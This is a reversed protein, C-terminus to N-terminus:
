PRRHPSVRRATTSNFGGGSIVPVGYPRAVTELQPIMGEAECAIILRSEQGEQRDLRLREAQHRLSRLFQDADAYGLSGISFKGGDDRIADWSIRSARRATNILDLLRQYGSDSKDYGYAGILRYFIQRITLPLYSAYEVLIADIAELLKRSRKQPKWDEIFGRPRLKDGRGAGGLLDDDETMRGVVSEHGQHSDGGPQPKHRSARALAEQDTGPSAKTAEARPTYPWTDGHGLFDGEHSQTGM